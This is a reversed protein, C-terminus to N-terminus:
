AAPQGQLKKLLEQLLGILGTLQALLGSNNTVPAAPTAPSSAPPATGQPVEAAPAPLSSSPTGDTATPTPGAAPVSVDTKAGADDASAAPPVIVTVFTSHTIATTTTTTGPRAVNSFPCASPSNAVPPGNGASPQAGNAPPPSNGSPQANTPPSAPVITTPIAITPLDPLTLSPPGGAGPAADVVPPISSSAPPISSSAPPAAQVPNSSVPANDVPAAAPSSSVPAAPAPAASSVPPAPVASSAPAAPVPVPAPASGDLNICAFSMQRTTAGGRVPGDLKWDMSVYPWCVRGDQFRVMDGAVYVNNSKVPVGVKQGNEVLQFYSGTYAGKCGMAVFPCSPQAIEEWTVIANTADLAAVHANSMDATGQTLWNVQLDGDKAGAQSIAQPGVLTFKDSMYAIAVNRNVTRASAQTNTGGMWTDPKLDVAGRSVWTFIYNNAGSFRALSSYSGSMGGMPENSGGNTVNENSIKVGNMSQTRTNLWIAGHDEACISAFPATDAAEFAIGTNHSCGWSSTAGAINQLQGADNVYQISDGFHGAGRGDYATVVFYAGYLKSTESYVLDGNLDPSAVRGLSGSVSPGGLFTKFTQQGGTYRYLVPVPTNGAPANQTGSPLPENTLLAFGDNHAVLGGAEKVGPVTVATGTAAFTVPDVQQVHVETESQDLYALYASKGDPSLAFPTRRHHPYGTWYSDKIPNFANSLAL